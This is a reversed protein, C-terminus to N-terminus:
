GNFVLLAIQNAQRLLSGAPLIKFARLLLQVLRRLQITRQIVGDGIEAPLEARVSMARFQLADCLLLLGEKIFAHRIQLRAIQIVGFSRQPLDESQGLSSMAPRFRRTVDILHNGLATLLFLKPGCSLEYGIGSIKAVKRCRDLRKVLDQGDSAPVFLPRALLM